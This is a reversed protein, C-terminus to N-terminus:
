HLLPVREAIRSHLIRQNIHLCHRSEWGDDQYDVPNRNIGLNEAEPVQKLPM